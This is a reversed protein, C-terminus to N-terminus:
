QEAVALQDSKWLETVTAPDAEVEDRPEPEDEDSRRFAGFLQGLAHLAVLSAPIGILLMRTSRDALAIFVWGVYPVSYEVVPQEQDVLKFHWPDPQPNHDGQTTFLVGGGEAPETKIIRHTVLSSTGSDPPPLYTIIDGGVELEDVTAPKEIVVSGKDITGTMSEGTIVYRSFGFLTPAIWALCALTVLVLATTFTWGAVRRPASTRRRRPSKSV